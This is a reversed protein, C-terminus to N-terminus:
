SQLVWLISHFLSKKDNALNSYNCKALNCHCTARARMTIASCCTNSSLAARGQPRSIFFMQLPETGSRRGQGRYSWTIYRTTLHMDVHPKWAGLAEVNLGTRSVNTGIAIYVNKHKNGFYEFSRLIEQAPWFVNNIHKMHGSTLNLAYHLTVSNVYQSKCLLLFIISM